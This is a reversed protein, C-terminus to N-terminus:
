FDFSCWERLPPVLPMKGDKFVGNQAAYQYEAKLAANGDYHEPSKAADKNPAPPGDPFMIREWKGDPRRFGPKGPFKYDDGAAIEEETKKYVVQKNKFTVLKGNQDRTSYQNIDLHELGLTRAGSPNGNVAPQSPRSASAFPSSGAPAVPQSQGFSAIPPSPKSNNFPNPANNTSPQANSFPNAPPAPNAPAFPNVTSAAVPAKAFPNSSQASNGAGFPSVTAQTQTQSGFPNNPTSVPAGFPPPTANSFSNTPQAPQAGFPTSQQGFAQGFAVSSVPQSPTGFAPASAPQSPVGFASTAPPQSPAGFASTTAPQQSFASPKNAFASFPSAAPANSPTFLSPKQGLASPQGFSGASGLQTPAGFAPTTAAFASPKPGLASPQGFAGGPASPAGFAPAAVQSSSAFPNAKPVSPFPSVNKSFPNAQTNTPETQAVVDLRNPHQKEGNVIFEIAGDLNNAAAQM